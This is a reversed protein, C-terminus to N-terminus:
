HRSEKCLKRYKWTLSARLDIVVAKLVYGQRLPLVRQTVVTVRAPISAALATDVSNASGTAGNWIRGDPSVDAAFRSQRQCLHRQDDIDM